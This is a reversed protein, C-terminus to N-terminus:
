VGISEAVVSQPSKVRDGEDIGRAWSLLAAVGALLALFAFTGRIAILLAASPADVTSAVHQGVEASLCLALVAGSLAVGVSTGVSRTMNLVGGATGLRHPPATAMISSNNPPTFLGLGIGLLALLVLTAALNIPPLAAAALLAAASLTMGVVTPLRAGVRDTLLGALPAVIALTLPIPSLLLGAAAPSYGLVRQLYFPVLFLSGFLVAYAVLGSLIGTSFQRSHFLALDVLPSAARREARVFAALCAIVVGGLLLLRPSTWAWATGFTLGVLILGVTPGLLLAGAWDFHEARHGARATGHATQPLVCWGLVTGILGFPVVIFFVWRWDLAEILFGGLSPGISLGIAQAAGQAGIARGLRRRDVAATIIAVSNAQLMAAGVAQVCRFGILWLLNPAFGCLASGAIFVLFGFTYLLKRGMLDALRGLPVVLAALVLLYAIAVWEVDAIAAHFTTELTPLILGAISADLQGLFAGVCVTAVVLWAYATSAAVRPLPPPESLLPQLRM